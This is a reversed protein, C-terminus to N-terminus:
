YTLSQPGHLWPAARLRVAELMEAPGDCVVSARVPDLINACLPWAARAAAPDAAYEALKERMREVTKCPATYVDLLRPGVRFSCLMRTATVNAGSSAASELRSIDTTVCTDCSATPRFGIDAVAVDVQPRRGNRWDSSTERSSRGGSDDQTAGLQRARSRPVVLPTWGDERPPRDSGEGESDLPSALCRGGGQSFEVDSGARM